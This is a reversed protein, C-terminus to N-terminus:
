SRVAHRLRRAARELDLQTDVDILKEASPRITTLGPLKRLLPGAGEEGSWDALMALADVPIHAPVGPLGDPYRCAAPPQAALLETLLSSDVLPMDALMVLLSAAQREIAARAALALSSGMGRDPDPNVLTGCDERVIECTESSGIWIVPLGLGLAADLAWRGLPKDACDALLKAGGFRRSRGAALIAILPLPPSSM